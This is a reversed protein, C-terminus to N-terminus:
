KVGGYCARLAAACENAHMMNMKIKEAGAQPTAAMTMDSGHQVCQMYSSNCATYAEAMMKPDGASAAGAALMSMLSAIGLARIANTMIM